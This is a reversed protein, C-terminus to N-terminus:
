APMHMVEWESAWVSARRAGERTVSGDADTSSDGEPMHDMVWKSVKKGGGRRVSGGAGTWSGEGGGSSGEGCPVTARALTWRRRETMFTMVTLSRERAPRSLAFFAVSSCSRSEVLLLPEEEGGEVVVLRRM